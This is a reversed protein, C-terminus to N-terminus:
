KALHAKNARNLWGNLNEYQSKDKEAINNYYKKM